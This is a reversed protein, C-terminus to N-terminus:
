YANRDGKLIEFITKIVIKFDLTLSWNKVYFRDLKVRGSMDSLDVTEGRFGKAQALGTIGPKVLHRQWFKDIKPQYKLNHQVAQPRPGVVSMEGKLVNIFQPLEDISTKRLIKGIRTIRPDKKQAQLVDKDQHLYMSRFKYITFLKNDRGHRLQKFLVPGKSELRILLAILPFLWSLISIFILLSFVIDFTRKIFRNLINELPTTSVSINPISGLQQIKLNYSLLKSFHSFLNVRILNNEAFHIVMRIQEEDLNPICCYIFDVKLNFASEELNDLNSTKLIGVVRYGLYPNEKIFQILSEALDADGIILVNRYNFGRTRYYRIVYHWIARWFLISISFCSYTYFLYIRSYSGPQFVFWLAFVLSLNIVLATLVRNSHDLLGSDRNIIQLKSGLFVLMWIINLFLFLLQYEQSIQFTSFLFRFSGLLSLNLFILDAALFLVPFFRSYRHHQRM